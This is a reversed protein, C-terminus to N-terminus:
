KNLLGICKDIERVLDGIRKKAEAVEHRTALTQSITINELREELENITIKQQNIIQQQEETKTKLLTLQELAEEQKKLLLKLKYDIGSILM